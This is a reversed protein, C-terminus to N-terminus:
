IFISTLCANDCGDDANDNGDDCSESPQRVGDGCREGLVCGTACEGYGGDNVGDDCQEGYLGDVNGDGCRPGLKCEPTCGDHGGTNLGNDCQEGAASELTSDGCHAGFDQCGPMCGGYAGANMGDDCVEDATVVGDGCMSVCSTKVKEFGRLTLKYSSQTTHREAQFVVVEYIKGTQLAFRADGGTALTVTGDQAGHVGGLDVALRGNIFV